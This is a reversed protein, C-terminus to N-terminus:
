FHIKIILLIDYKFDKEEESDVCFAKIGDFIEEVQANIVFITVDDVSLSTFTRRKM